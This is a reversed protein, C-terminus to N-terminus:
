LGCMIWEMLVSYLSINKVVCKINQLIYYMKYLIVANQQCRTVLQSLINNKIGKLELKIHSFRILQEHSVLLADFM